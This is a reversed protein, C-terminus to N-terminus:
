LRHEYETRLQDCKARQAPTLPRPHAILDALFQAEWDTVEFDARDLRELFEFIRREELTLTSTDALQPSKRSPTM